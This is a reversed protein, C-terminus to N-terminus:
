GYNKQSTPLVAILIEGPSWFVAFDEGLFVRKRVAALKQAVAGGKRAWKSAEAAMRPM